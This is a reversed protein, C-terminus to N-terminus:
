DSYGAGIAATAALLDPVLDLVEEDGLLVDPVCVSVAAVM